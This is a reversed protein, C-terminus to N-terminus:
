TIELRKKWGGDKEEINEKEKSRTRGWSCYTIQFQVLVVSLHVSELSVLYFM